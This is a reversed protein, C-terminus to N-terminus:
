RQARPATARRSARPPRRAATASSGPHCPSAYSPARPSASPQAPWPPLAPQPQPGAAGAEKWSIFRLPGRQQRAEVGAGVSSQTVHRGPSAPFPAGRAVVRRRKKIFMNYSYGDEADTTAGPVQKGLWWNKQSKRRPPFKGRHCQASDSASRDGRARGPRRRTVRATARNSKAHMPRNVPRSTGM